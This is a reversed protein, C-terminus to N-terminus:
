KNWLDKIVRRCDFGGSVTRRFGDWGGSSSQRLDDRVRDRGRAKGVRTNNARHVELDLPDEESPGLAGDTGDLALGWGTEVVFVERSGSLPDFGPFRLSLSAEGLGGSVFPRYDDCDIGLDGCLAALDAYAREPESLYGLFDAEQIPGEPPPGDGLARALMARVLRIQLASEVADVSPDFFRLGVQAGEGQRHFQRRWPVAPNEVDFDESVLGFPVVDQFYGTVDIQTQFTRQGFSDNFYRMNYLYGKLDAETGPFNRLVEFGDGDIEVPVAMETRSVHQFMLSLISQHRHFLALFRGMGEPDGAFASADVGITGSDLTKGPSVVVNFKKFTKHVARLHAATPVFLPTTIRIDGASVSEPLVRGSADYSRRMNAWEVSWEGGDPDEFLYAIGFDHGERGVRGEVVGQARGGREPGGLLGFLYSGMREVLEGRELPDMDTRTSVWVPDLDKGFYIGGEMGLPLDGVYTLSLPFRESGGASPM